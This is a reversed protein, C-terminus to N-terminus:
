DPIEDGNIRAWAEMKMSCIHAEDVKDSDVNHTMAVHCWLDVLFAAFRDHARLVFIPEDDAIKSLLDPDGKLAM